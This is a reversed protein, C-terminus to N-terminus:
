VNNYFFKKRNQNKQEKEKIHTRTEWIFTLKGNFDARQMEKDVQTYQKSIM